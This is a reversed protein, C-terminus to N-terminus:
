AAADPAPIADPDAPLPGLLLALTDREQKPWAARREPPRFPMPRMDPLALRMPWPGTVAMTARMVVGNIWQAGLSPETRGLAVTHQHLADMAAALGEAAEHVAACLRETEALADGVTALRARAAEAEQRAAEAADGRARADEAAQVRDTLAEAEERLETLTLPDVPEGRGRAQRMEAIRGRVGELEARLRTVREAATEAPTTDIPKTKTSM